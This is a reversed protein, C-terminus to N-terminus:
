NAVRKRHKRHKKYGTNRQKKELEEMILKRTVDCTVPEDIAYHKTSTAEAYRTGDKYEVYGQVIYVNGNVVVKQPQIEFNGVM